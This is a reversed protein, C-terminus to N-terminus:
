MDVDTTSAKNVRELFRRAHPLILDSRRFAQPYNLGALGMLDIMSDM